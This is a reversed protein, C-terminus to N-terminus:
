VCGGAIDFPRRRRVLRGVGRLPGWYLLLGLFVGGLRLPSYRTSSTGRSHYRYVAVRPPPSAGFLMASLYPFRIPLALARALHDARIIRFSTVPVDWPKGVSIRFLLNNLFTGLRRYAPLRGASQLPAGYLLDVDPRHRMVTIMAPLEEPPHDGDDDLTAVIHGRSLGAGIITAAQQGRNRPLCVLLVQIAGPHDAEEEEPGAAVIGPVMGAGVRPRRTTTHAVAGGGSAAVLRELADHNAADSGDDVILVEASSVGSATIAAVIRPLTRRLRSGGNYSPVVVSLEPDTL